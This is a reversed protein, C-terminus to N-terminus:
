QSDRRRLIVEASGRGMGVSTGQTEWILQKGRLGQRPTQRQPSGLLLCCRQLFRKRILCDSTDLLFTLADLGAKQTSKKKRRGPPNALGCLLYRHLVGLRFVPFVGTPRHLFVVVLEAPPLRVKGHTSGQSALCLVRHNCSAKGRWSWVAPDGEGM